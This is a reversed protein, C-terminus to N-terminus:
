CYRHCWCFPLLRLCTARVRTTIKRNTYENLAIIIQVCAIRCVQVCVYVCEVTLLLAFAYLDEGRLCCCCCYSSDFVITDDTAIAATRCSFRRSRLRHTHTHTRKKQIKKISAKEKTMAVIVSCIVMIMLLMTLIKRRCSCEIVQLPASEM